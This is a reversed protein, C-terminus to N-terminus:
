PAGGRIELDSESSRNGPSSASRGAAELVMSDGRITLVGDAVSVDVDDRDMGALDATILLERDTEDIDVKPWGGDMADWFPTFVSPFPSM